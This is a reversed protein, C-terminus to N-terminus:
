LPKVKEYVIKEIVMRLGGCTECKKSCSHEGWGYCCPCPIIRMGNGEMPKCEGPEEEHIFENCNPCYVHEPKSM